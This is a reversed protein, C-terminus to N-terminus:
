DRETEERLIRNEHELNQIRILAALRQEELAADM